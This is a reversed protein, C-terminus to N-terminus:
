AIVSPATLFTTARGPAIRVTWRTTVTVTWSITVTAARGTKTTMARGQGSRLITRVVQDLVDCIAGPASM